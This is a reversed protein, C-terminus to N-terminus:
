GKADKTSFSYLSVSYGWFMGSYRCNFKNHFSIQLMYLSLNSKTKIINEYIFNQYMDLDKSVDKANSMRKLLIMIYHYTLM